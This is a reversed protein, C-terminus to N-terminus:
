KCITGTALNTVTTTATQGAATQVSSVLNGDPDYTLVGVSEIGATSNTMTTTRAVDDYAMTLATVLGAGPLPISATTPRGNLDWASYTTTSTGAAAVSTSDVLRRQGDYSYAITATITGKADTQTSTIKLSRILPPIVQVEDVIDDVSAYDSIGTATSSNDMNDSYQSTCSVQNTGNFTCTQTTTSSYPGATSVMTASTPYVRCTRGGILLRGTSPAAGSALDGSSNLPGSPGIPNSEIPSSGCSTVLLAAVLAFALPSVNVIM